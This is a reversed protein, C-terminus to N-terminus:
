NGNIDTFGYKVCLANLEDLVEMPLHTIKGLKDMTNDHINRGIYKAFLFPTNTVFAKVTSKPAMGAQPAAKYSEPNSIYDLVIKETTQQCVLGGFDKDLKMDRAVAEVDLWQALKWIRTRDISEGFEQGLDHIIERKDIKEIRTGANLLKDAIGLRPFRTHLVLLSHIKIGDNNDKVVGGAVLRNITSQKMDGGADTYDKAIKFQSPWNKVISNRNTDQRNNEDSCRKIRDALTAYKEVIIPIKFSAIADKPSMGDQIKMAIIPIITRARQFAFVGEYDCGRFEGEETFWKSRFASTFQAHTLKYGKGREPYEYDVLSAELTALHARIETEVRVKDEDSLEVVAVVKTTDWGVEYLNVARLASEAETDIKSVHRGYNHSPSWWVKNCPVLKGLIEEVVKQKAM